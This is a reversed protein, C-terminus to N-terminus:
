IRLSPRAVMAASAFQLAARDAVPIAVTLGRLCPEREARVAVGRACRAVRRHVLLELHQAGGRCFSQLYFLARGNLCDHFAGPRPQLPKQLIQIVSFARIWQM